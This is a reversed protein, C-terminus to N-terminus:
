NVMNRRAKRGERGRKREEGEKGVSMAMRRSHVKKGVASEPVTRSTMLCDDLSDLATRRM